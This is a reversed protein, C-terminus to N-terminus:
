EGTPHVPREGLEEAFARRLDAFGTFSTYPIGAERSVRELDRGAKAFLRDAAGAACRDSLGDGIFVVPGFRRAAEVAGGKCNGCRGCGRGAYPFAPLLRDGAFVARNAEVPLAGLGERDLIARIYVDLGDSVVRVRYGAALAGATFHPFDPDVPQELAFRLVEDRTARALACEAILCERSTIEGAKWRDVPGSARGGTFRWFLANGVDVTSATGDFDILLTGRGTM